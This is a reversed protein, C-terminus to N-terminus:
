LSKLYAVIADIQEPTFQDGFQPMGGRDLGETEPTTCM